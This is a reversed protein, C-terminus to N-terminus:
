KQQDPHPSDVVQQLLSGKQTSIASNILGGNMMVLAQPITGNFTTSEDNEDTGFTQVFQRLWTQRQKEADEFGRGTKHAATAIILSDYLQEAQFQKVYMKSFLPATGAAPNDESNHESSRSTLNYAESSTIWRILRKTDYGAERFQTALYELLEPHSAPNHPGMDDIPRTFGFGFFHGWLRNVATRAMFPKTPDTMLKALQQRPRQRDDVTVATGDVFKRFTAEQLGSRKEFFKVETSPQDVLRFAQRNGLRRTGSFFANMSWFQSQKWDNFPHNHCQTCQVQLGLFIRATIATAPVAGNNLHRALFNVAGNEDSTGEASVLEFVFRDYPM